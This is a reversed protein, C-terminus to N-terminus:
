CKPLPVDPEDEATAEILEVIRELADAIRQLSTDIDGDDGCLDCAM